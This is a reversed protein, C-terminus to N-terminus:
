CQGHMNKVKILVNKVPVNKTTWLGIGGQERKGYVGNLNGLRYCEKYWWGGGDLYKQCCNGSSADNDRDYTSFKMNNHYSFLEGINGEYNFANVNMTYATTADHVTFVKYHAYEKEGEYNEMDFYIQSGGITLRHIKELGLWHSGDIDGFGNVYDDWSRYFNIKDDARKQILTWGGNAMDCFVFFPCRGDPSISYVGDQRTGNKYIESCDRPFGEITTYPSVNQQQVLKQLQQIQLELSNIKEEMKKSCSSSPVADTNATCTWTSQGYCVDVAVLASLALFSFMEQFNQFASFASVTSSSKKSM